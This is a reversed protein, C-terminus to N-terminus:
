NFSINMCIYLGLITQFNNFMYILEFDNNKKAIDKPTKNLMNRCNIDADFKLLIGVMIMDGHKVAVHLATDGSLDNERNVQKCKYIYM